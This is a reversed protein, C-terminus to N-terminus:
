LDSGCDSSLCASVWVDLHMCVQKKTYESMTTVRGQITWESSVQGLIGPFMDEYGPWSRFVRDVTGSKLFM